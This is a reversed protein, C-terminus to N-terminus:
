NESKIDHFAALRNKPHSVNANDSNSVTSITSKNSFQKAKDVADNINKGVYKQMKEFLSTEENLKDRIQAINNPKNKDENPLNSLNGVLSAISQMSIRMEAKTQNQKKATISIELNSIKDHLAELNNNASIKQKAPAAVNVSQPKKLSAKSKSRQAQKKISNTKEVSNQALNNLHESANSIRAEEKIAEKKHFDKTANPSNIHKAKLEAEQSLLSVRTKVESLERERMRLRQSLDTVQKELNFVKTKTIKKVENLEAIETIQTTFNKRLIANENKFSSIQALKESLKTRLNETNMELKRTSLAFDARLQDKDALIEATTVPKNSEIRRQTLRVARKYVRPLIMIALLAAIFFGLAFYIINEIGV